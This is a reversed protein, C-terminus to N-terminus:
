DLYICLSCNKSTFICINLRIKNVEGTFIRCINQSNYRSVDAITGEGELIGYKRCKYCKINHCFYKM